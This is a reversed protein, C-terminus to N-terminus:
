SSPWLAYGAAGALLGTTLTIAVYSIAAAPSATTLVELVFTSYTTLGGCVGAALFTRLKGDGCAALVLGLLFCGVINATLTSGMAYRALAGLAAGAGVLAYNTRM